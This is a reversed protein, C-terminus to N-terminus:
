NNGVGKTAVPKFQGYIQSLLPNFPGDAPQDQPNLQTEEPSPTNPSPYPNPDQTHFPQLTTKNQGTDKVVSLTTDIYQRTQDQKM